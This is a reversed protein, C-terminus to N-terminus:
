ASPAAESSSKKKSLKKTDGKPKADADLAVDSDILTQIDSFFAKGDTCEYCRDNISSQQILGEALIAALMFGPTNTSKGKFLSLLLFSTITGNGPITGDAAEKTFIEQIAVLPIWERSFYGSSSNAHVRFLIEGHDGNVEQAVHYTLTASQSLSPCTGIKLIRINRPQSIEPNTTAANM